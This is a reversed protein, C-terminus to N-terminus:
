ACKSIIYQIGLLAKQDLLYGSHIRDIPTKPNQHALIGPCDANKQVGGENVTEWYHGFKAHWAWDYRKKMDQIAEGVVKLKDQCDQIPEGPAFCCSLITALESGIWFFIEGSGRDEVPARMLNPVKTAATGLNDKYRTLVDAQEEFNIQTM